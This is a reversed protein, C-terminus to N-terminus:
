PLPFHFPFLYLSRFPLSPSLSSFSISPLKPGWHEHCISAEALLPNYISIFISAIQLLHIIIVCTRKILYLFVIKNTFLLSMTVVYSVHICPFCHCAILLSFWGSLCFVISMATQKTPTFIDRTTKSVTETM